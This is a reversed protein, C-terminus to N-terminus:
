MECTKMGKEFLNLESGPSYNSWELKMVVNRVGHLRELHVKGYYPLREPSFCVTNAEWLLDKRETDIQKCTSTLALSFPEM